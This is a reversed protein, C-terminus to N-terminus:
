LNQDLSPLTAWLDRESYPSGSAINLLFDMQSPINTPEVIPPQMGISHCALRNENEDTASLVTPPITPMQTAYRSTRQRGAGRM